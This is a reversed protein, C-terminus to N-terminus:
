QIVLMGFGFAKPCGSVGSKLTEKFQDVDTVKLVGTFDAGSQDDQQSGEPTSIAFYERCGARACMRVGFSVSGRDKDELFASFRLWLMSFLSDPFVGFRLQDDEVRVTPSLKADRLEDHAIKAVVLRAARRRRSAESNTKEGPEMM